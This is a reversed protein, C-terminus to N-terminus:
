LNYANTGAEQNCYLEILFAAEDGGLDYLEGSSNLIQIRLQQLRHQTQLLMYCGVQPTREVVNQSSRSSVLVATARNAVADPSLIAELDGIRLILDTDNIVRYDGSAAATGTFSTHGSLAAGPNGVWLQIGSTYGLLRLLKCDAIAFYDTIFAGAFTFLVRHTNPDLTFQVDYPDLTTNIAALLDTISQSYDGPELRVTGFVAGGNAVFTFDQNHRNILPEATYKFNRVNVGYVKHIVVPLDVVFDSANPHRAVDRHKSSVFVSRVIPALSTGLDRQVIM